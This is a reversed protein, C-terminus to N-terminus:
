NVITISSKKFGIIRNEQHEAYRLTVPIIDMCHLSNNQYRSPKCTLDRNARILRSILSYMEGDALDIRGNIGIIHKPM